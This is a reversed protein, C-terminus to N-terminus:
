RFKVNVVKLLDYCISFKFYMTTNKIVIFYVFTIYFRIFNLHPLQHDKYNTYMISATGLGMVALGETVFLSVLGILM